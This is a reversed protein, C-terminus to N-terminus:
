GREVTGFQCKNPDGDDGALASEPRSADAARTGPPPEGAARGRGSVIHKGMSNKHMGNEAVFDKVLNVTDAPLRVEAQERKLKSMFKALQGHKEIMKVAKIVDHLGMRISAGQALHVPTVKEVPGPKVRKRDAAKAKGKAKTKGPRKM